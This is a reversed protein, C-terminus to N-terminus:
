AALAYPPPLPQDLAIPVIREASFTYRAAGTPKLIVLARLVSSAWQNQQEPTAADWAAEIEARAQAKLQQYAGTPDDPAMRELEARLENIETELEAGLLQRTRVPTTRDAMLKAHDEEVRQVKALTERYAALDEDAVANIRAISEQSAMLGCVIERMVAHLPAATITVPSPCPRRSTPGGNRCAYTPLGLKGKKQGAYMRGMCYACYLLGTGPHKERKRPRGRRNKSAKAVIADFEERTFITETDETFGAMRVGLEGDHETFGINVARTMVRLVATGDWRKGRPSPVGRDNLAIAIATLSQGRRPQGNIGLYRDRMERIVEVEEPVLKWELCRCKAKPCGKVHVRELGYRKGPNTVIGEARQKRKTGHIREKVWAVEEESRLAERKLQYVDDLDSPDYIRRETVLFAGVDRCAKLLRNLQTQERAWRDSRIAAVYTPRLKRIDILLAEFGPRPKLNGDDDPAASVKDAYGQSQGIRQAPIRLPGASASAIDTNRDFQREVNVVDKDEKVNSKREYSVLTANEILGPYIRDHRAPPYGNPEAALPVDTAEPVETAKMLTKIAMGVM